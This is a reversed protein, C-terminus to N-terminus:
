HELGMQRLVTTMSEKVHISFKQNTIIKVLGNNTDLTLYLINDPNLLITESEKYLSSGSDCRTLQLLKMKM